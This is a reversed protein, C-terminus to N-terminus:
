FDNHMVTYYYYYAETSDHITQQKQNSFTPSIHELPPVDSTNCRKLGNIFLKLLCAEIFLINEGSTELSKKLNYM